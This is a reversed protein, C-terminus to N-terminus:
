AGSLDALRREAEAIHPHGAPFTARFIALAQELMGRGEAVRGTQGLLRGLNALSIAYSPHGEGLTARTIELAQRYLGEAEAYRGQDKVALALNGLGSAYDPHGEGLTARGIELAERFLGEAEAYRGQARVVGALNNLRTAYDLHGDGVTARDIELAQRYLGEAEEYRGQAEVVVALNGLRTAYAPHGEGLTARTIELAQRYLGEAEEYRGQAEVVVALNNLQEAYAATDPGDTERVRDRLAECAREAETGKALRWCMRAYATLHDLEASLEAARRYHAYADHWRVADEAVLGRGFASQAAMVLGRRESEALLADIEEYQLDKFAELASHIRNEGIAMQTAQDQLLQEIQTERQKHDRYATEPDALKAEVGQKQERLQTLERELSKKELDSVRDRLADKEAILADIRDDKRRLEDIFKQVPVGYQDRGAVTAGASGELKIDSDTRDPM